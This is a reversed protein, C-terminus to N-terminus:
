VGISVLQAASERYNTNINKESRERAVLSAEKFVDLCSDWKNEPTATTLNLAEDILLLWLLDYEVVEIIATRIPILSSWKTIFELERSGEPFRRGNTDLYDIAKVDLPAVVMKGQRLWSCTRGAVGKRGTVDECNEELFDSLVLRHAEEYPEVRIDHVFARVKLQYEEPTM